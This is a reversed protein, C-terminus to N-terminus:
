DDPFTFKAQAQYIGVTERIWKFFPMALAMDRTLIASFNKKLIDERSYHRTVGLLCGEHDASIKFYFGPNWEFRSTPPVAFYFSSEDKVIPKNDPNSKQMRLPRSVRKPDIKIGPLADDFKEWIKVILDSMPRKIFEKYLEENQEFWSRKM